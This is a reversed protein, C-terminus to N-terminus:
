SSSHVGPSVFASPFDIVVQHKNLSTEDFRSHSESIQLNHRTQFYPVRACPTVGFELWLRTKQTRISIKLAFRSTYAFLSVPLSVNIHTAGPPKIKGRATWM